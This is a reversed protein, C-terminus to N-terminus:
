LKITALVLSGSYNCTTIFPALGQPLLLLSFAFFDRSRLAILLATARQNGTRERGKSAKTLFLRAYTYNPAMIQM